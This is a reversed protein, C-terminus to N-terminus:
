VRLSRALREHPLLVVYYRWLADVYHVGGGGRLRDLVKDPTTGILPLWDPNDSKIEACEYKMVSGDVWMESPVIISYVNFEADVPINSATKTVQVILDEVGRMDREHLVANDITAM